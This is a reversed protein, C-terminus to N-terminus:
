IAYQERAVSLVLAFCTPVPNQKLQQYLVQSVHANRRCIDNSHRAIVINQLIRQWARRLSVRLKNFGPARVIADCRPDVPDVAGWGVAARM